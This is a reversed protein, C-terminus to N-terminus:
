GSEMGSITLLPISFLLGDVTVTLTFGTGISSGTALAPLAWVTLEPSLTVSSPLLFSQDLYFYVSKDISEFKQGRHIEKPNLKMVDLM